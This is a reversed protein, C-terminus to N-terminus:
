SSKFSIQFISVVSKGGSCVAIFQAVEEVWRGDSSILPPRDRYEGQISGLFQRLQWATLRPPETQEPLTLYAVTNAHRLDFYWGM